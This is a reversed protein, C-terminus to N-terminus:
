MTSSLALTPKGSGRGSTPQSSASLLQSSASLSSSALMIGSRKSRNHKKPLRGAVNLVVEELDPDVSPILQQVATVQRCHLAPPGQQLTLRRWLECWEQLVAKGDGGELGTEHLYPDCFLGLFLPSCM